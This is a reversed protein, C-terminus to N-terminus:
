DLYDSPQHSGDFSPAEVKILRLLHDDQDDHPPRLNPKPRRPREQYQELGLEERNPEVQPHYARQGDVRLAQNNQELLDLRNTMANLQRIVANLAETLQNVQDQLGEM